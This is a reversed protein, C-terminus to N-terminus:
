GGAWQGVLREVRGQGAWLRYETATVTLGAETLTSVSQVPRRLFLNPGEGLHTEQVTGGSVYHAGFRRILEDEERAILDSLDDDTKSTRILVRAEAVDLLTAM